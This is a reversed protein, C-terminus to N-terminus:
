AGKGAIFLLRYAAGAFTQALLPLWKRVAAIVANNDPFHQGRLGYKMPGFLHFDLPALDPSYPPYPLVTRGFKAIHATTALSTHPRDNDYQLSFTYVEMRHTKHDQTLMRPVWRSCVKRYDLKGLMTELANCRINFQACLKRTMIQQDTHILQDLHQENHPTDASCPCGPRPKNRVEIEGTNFRVVWRRVTSVEMTDDGYVKLLCRHIDTPAIQEATLFEIVCRQKTRVEKDPAM